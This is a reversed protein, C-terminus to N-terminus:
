FDQGLCKEHIDPNSDAVDDQSPLNEMTFRAILLALIEAGINLLKQTFGRIQRDLISASKDWRLLM